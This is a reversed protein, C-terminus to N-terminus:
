MGEMLRVGLGEGKNTGRESVEGKNTQSIETM